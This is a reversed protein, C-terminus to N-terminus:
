GDKVEGWTKVLEKMFKIGEYGVQNEVIAMLALGECEPKGDENNCSVYGPCGHCAHENIVKHLGGDGFDCLEEGIIPCKLKAM